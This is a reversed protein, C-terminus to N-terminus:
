FVAVSSAQLQGSSTHCVGSLRTYGQCRVEKGDILGAQWCLWCMWVWCAKAVWLHHDSGVAAAALDPVAGAVFCRAPLVTTLGLDRLHELQEQSLQLQEFLLCALERNSLLDRQRLDVALVDWGSALASLCLQQMDRDTNGQLHLMAASRSLCHQKYNDLLVSFRSVMQTWSKISGVGRRFGIWASTLGGVLSFLLGTDSFSLLLVPVAMVAVTSYQSAATLGPLDSGFATSLYGQQDSIISLMVYTLPHVVCSFEFMIKLIIVLLWLLGNAVSRKGDVALNEAPYFLADVTPDAACAAHGAASVVAAGATESNTAGRRRRSYYARWEQWLSGSVYGARQRLLAGGWVVLVHALVPILWLHRDHVWTSVSPVPSFPKDAMRPVVALALVATWALWLLMLVMHILARPFSKLSFPYLLVRTERNGAQKRVAPVQYSLLLLHAAPRAVRMLGDAVTSLALGSLLQMWGTPGPPKLRWVFSVAVMATLLAAHFAYVRWFAVFPAAMSRAEVFQKHSLLNQAWWDAGHKARNYVATIAESENTLAPFCKATVHQLALQKDKQLQQDDAGGRGRQLLLALNELIAVRRADRPYRPKSQLLPQGADKRRKGPPQDIQQHQQLMNAMALHWGSPPEVVQILAHWLDREAPNPIHPYGQDKLAKLLKSVGRPSCCAEDVDCYAIRLAAEEQGQHGALDIQEALFFFLPQVVKNLFVQQSEQQFLACLDALIDAVLGQHQPAAVAILARVADDVAEQQAAIDNLAQHWQEPAPASPDPYHFAQPCASYLQQLLNRRLSTLDYGNPKSPFDDPPQSQASKLWYRWDTHPVQQQQNPGTTTCFAELAQNFATSGRMIYYVLFLLHPTHRLNAAETYILFQLSLELLQLPVSDHRRAAATAAAGALTPKRGQQQQQSEAHDEPDLLRLQRVWLHYEEFYEAHLDAIAEEWAKLISVQGACTAYRRVAADRLLSTLQEATLGATAAVWEKTAHSINFQQFGLEKSLLYVGTQVVRSCGIPLYM